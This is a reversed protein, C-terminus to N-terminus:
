SITGVPNEELWNIVEDCKGMLTKMKQEVAFKMDFAFSELSSLATVRAKEQEDLYRYREVNKKMREIEDKSLHGLYSIFFVMLHYM